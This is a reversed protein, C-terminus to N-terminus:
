QQGKFFHWVLAGDHTQVTGIYEREDGTFDHGTGRCLILTRGGDDMTDIDIIAWLVLEGQQVQVALIRSTDAIPIYQEDAIRLPYKYIRPRM